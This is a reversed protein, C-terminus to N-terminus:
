FMWVFATKLLLTRHQWLLKVFSSWLRVKKSGKIVKRVTLQHHKLAWFRFCRNLMAIALLLIQLVCCDTM